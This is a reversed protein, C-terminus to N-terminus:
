RQQGLREAHFFSFQGIRQLHLTRHHVTVIRGLYFGHVHLIRRRFNRTRWRHSRRDSHLVRGNHCVKSFMWLSFFSLFYREPSFDQIFIRSKLVSLAFIRYIHLDNHQSCFIMQSFAIKQEWCTKRMKETRRPMLPSLLSYLGRTKPQKEKNARKEIVFIRFLNDHRPVFHFWGSPSMAAPQRFYPKKQWAPHVFPQRNSLFAHKSIRKYVPLSVSERLYAIRPRHFSVFHCVQSTQM